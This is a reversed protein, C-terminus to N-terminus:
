KLVNPLLMLKTWKKKFQQNLNHVNAGTSQQNLDQSPFWQIVLQNLHNDRSNLHLNLKRNFNPSNQAIIKNKKKNNCKKTLSFYNLVLATWTCNTISFALFYLFRFPMRFLHLKNKTKILILLAISVQFQPPQQFQPAASVLALLGLSIIIQKMMNTIKNTTQEKQHYYTEFIFFTFYLNVTALTVTSIYEKSSFFLIFPSFCNWRRKFLSILRVTTRVWERWCTFKSCCSDISSSVLPPGQWPVPPKLYFQM